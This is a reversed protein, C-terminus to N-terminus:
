QGLKRLSELILRNTMGKVAKKAAPISNTVPQLLGSSFGSSVGASCGIITSEMGAGVMSVTATSVAASIGAGAFFVVAFGLAFWVVDVGGAAEPLSGSLTSLSAFVVVRRGCRSSTFFSSGTFTSLSDLVVVRRGCRGYPFSAIRQTKEAYSLTTCPYVMTTQGQQNLALVCYQEGFFLLIKVKKM